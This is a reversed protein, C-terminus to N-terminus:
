CKIKGYVMIANIPIVANTFVGYESNVDYYFKINEPLSDTKIALVTYNGDNKPNHNHENLSRALNQIINVPVDGKLLYIRNPYKFISNESRPQLGNKVISSLNYTPTIHYLYEYSLIEETEDEQELPEFQMKVWEQGIEDKGTTEFGVFYGLQEMDHKICEICTEKNAFCVYIDINHKRHIVKFQWEEFDYKDFIIQKVKEPSYVIKNEIIYGHQTNEMLPSDFGVKKNILSIDYYQRKLSDIPIKSLDFIKNIVVEKEKDVIVRKVTEYIINRLESETFKYVKKM